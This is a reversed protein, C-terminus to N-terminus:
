DWKYDMKIGGIFIDKGKRKKWSKRKWGFRVPNMGDDSQPMGRGRRRPLDGVSGCNGVSGVEPRDPPATCCPRSWWPPPGPPPPQRLGVSRLPVSHWRHVSSLSWCCDCGSPYPCRLTPALSPRWSPPAPRPWPRWTWRHTRPPTRLIPTEESLSSNLNFCSHLKVINLMRLYLYILGFYNALM